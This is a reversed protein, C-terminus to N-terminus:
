SHDGVLYHGFNVFHKGRGRMVAESLDLLKCLIQDEVAEIHLLQQVLDEVEVDSTGM